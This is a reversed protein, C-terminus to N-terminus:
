YLTQALNIPRDRSEKNNQNLLCIRLLNYCHTEAISEFNMAGHENSIINKESRHETSDLPCIEKSRRTSSEWTQHKGLQNNKLKM